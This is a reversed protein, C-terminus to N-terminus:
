RLYPMARFVAESTLIVAFVLKPSLRFFGAALTMMGGLPTPSLVLLWPLWEKAVGRLQEIRLRQEPTSVREPMRRLWLGLAYLLASGLLGGLAALAAYAPYDVRHFQRIAGLTLEQGMPLLRARFAEAIVQTQIM